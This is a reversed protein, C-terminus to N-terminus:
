EMKKTFGGHSQMIAQGDLRAINQFADTATGHPLEGFGM